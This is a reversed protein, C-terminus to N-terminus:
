CSDEKPVCEHKGSITVCRQQSTCCHVDDGERACPDPGTGPPCEGDNDVGCHPTPGEWVCKGNYDVGNIKVKSPCCRDKFSGDCFLGGVYPDKDECEDEDDDCWVLDRGGPWATSGCSQADLCCSHHDGDASTCCKQGNDNCCQPPSPCSISNSGFMNQCTREICVGNKCFGNEPPNCSPGTLPLHKCECDGTKSKQTTPPAGIGLVRGTTRFKGFFSLLWSSGGGSTPTEPPVCTDLTCPNGDDCGISDPGFFVDRGLGLILIGFLIVIAVVIITISKKKDM